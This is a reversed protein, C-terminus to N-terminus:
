RLRRRSHCRPRTETIDAGKRRIQSLGCRHQGLQGSWRARRGRPALRLLKDDQQMAQTRIAVIQDAEGRIPRREQGLGLENRRVGREGAVHPWVTVLPEARLIAARRRNQCTNPGGGRDKVSEDAVCQGSAPEAVALHRQDAKRLARHHRQEDPQPAGLRCSTDESKRSPQERGLQQRLSSRERGRM